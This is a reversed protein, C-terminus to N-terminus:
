LLSLTQFTPISNLGIAHMFEHLPTQVRTACGVALSLEQRGRLMGVWSSCGHKRNIDLYDTEGQWPVFRFFLLRDSWSRLFAYNPM